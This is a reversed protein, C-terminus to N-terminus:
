PQFIFKHLSYAPFFHIYEETHFIIGNYNWDPPLIKIFIRDIEGAPNVEAIRNNQITTPALKRQPLM